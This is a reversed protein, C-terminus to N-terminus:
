SYISWTIIDLLRLDTLRTVAERVFPDESTSLQSRIVSFTATAAVLDNRIALWTAYKRGAFLSRQPGYRQAAERAASDYAKLLYQDEIPFMGPRMLFLVKSIKALRVGAPASKEFHNWLVEAADYLGEEVLPDAQALTADVPVSAWPASRGQEIFWNEEAKSIRSGMWPARTASIVEPTIEAPSAGALYDYHRITGEHNQVYLEIVAAPDAVIHGAITVSPVAQAPDDVQHDVPEDTSRLDMVPIGLIEAGAIDTVYAVTDHRDLRGALVTLADHGSEIVLAVPETHNSTLITVINLTDAYDWPPESPVTIKWCETGVARFRTLLEDSGTAVYASETCLKPDDVIALHVADLLDRPACFVKSVAILPESAWHLLWDEDGTVIAVDKEPDPRSRNLAAANPETMRDETILLARFGILEVATAVQESRYTALGLRPVLARIHAEVERLKLVAAESDAALRGWSCAGV